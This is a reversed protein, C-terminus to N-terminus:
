KDVVRDVFEKSLGIYGAPDMIERLKAESIHDKLRDDALILDVINKKENIATMCLENIIDHAEIRGIEGGIYMMIGETFILGHLKEINLAMVDEHVEMNSVLWIAKDLAADTIESAREISYNEFSLMRSDRENTGESANMIETMCSRIARGYGAVYCANFPNRKHPMTSSVGSGAKFGESIEGVETKAEIYIENGIRGIDCTLISLVSVYELLRDRTAYWAIDPCSLGLEKMLGELLPIGKDHDYTAFTGVAGGFQGTMIRPKAQEMREISHNLADVWMALKFGFTLPVAQQDNTRGIMVLGRYQRAKDAIIDRLRVTKDYIIDWADRMQLIMACDMIDQTTTGYHVFQGNEKSCINKYVNVLPVVPTNAVEVQRLYEAQDILDIDCKSVIEDAAAKPIIGLEGQVKALAAETIMMNKVYNYGGFAKEAVDVSGYNDKTFGQYIFNRKDM